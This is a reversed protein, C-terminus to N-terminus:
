GCSGVSALAGVGGRPVRGGDKTACPTTTRSWASQTCACSRTSRTPRLRHCSPAPKSSPSQQSAGTTTPCTARKSSATQPRSRPSAPSASNRSWATRSPESPASPAAAHRPRTPPSTNSASSTSPAALRPRTARTWKAAPRPPTSTTAAETQTSAAPCGRTPSCRSSRASPPRPAGRRTRQRKWAAPRRPRWWLMKWRLSRARCGRRWVTRCFASPQTARVAIGALLRRAARPRGRTPATAHWLVDATRTIRAASLGQM